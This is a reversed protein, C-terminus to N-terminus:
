QVDSLDLDDLSTAPAACTRNTCLFFLDKGKTFRYSALAPALSELVASNEPTKVLITLSPYLAAIRYLQPMQETGHLVCILESTPYLADMLALLGFSFWMPNNWAAGNIFAIQKDYLEKYNESFMLRSLKGLAYAAASNGSPMAGDYAEKPRSILQESGSGYM